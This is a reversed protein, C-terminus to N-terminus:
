YVDYCKVLNDSNCEMMLQSESKCLRRRIQKVAM